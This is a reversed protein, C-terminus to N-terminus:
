TPIAEMKVQFSRFLLIASLAPSGTKHGAKKNGTM